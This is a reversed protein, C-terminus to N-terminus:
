EKFYKFIFNMFEKNFESDINSKASQFFENLSENKMSKRYIGAQFILELKDIEHVIQSEKTNGDKFENWIQIYRNKLEDPLTSLIKYMANNEENEKQPNENPIQDGIIAEGLDHLLAMCVMKKTDLKLYDGIIMSIMATAYSHDAVSETEKQNTKILWGKRKREKLKEVFILFNIFKQNIMFVM